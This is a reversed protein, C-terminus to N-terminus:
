SCVMQVLGLCNYAWEKMLRKSNGMLSAITSKGEVFYGLLGLQGAQLLVCSSEEVIEIRSILYVAM